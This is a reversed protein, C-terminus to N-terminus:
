ASLPKAHPKPVLGVDALAAAVLADYRGAALDGFPDKTYPLLERFPLGFAARMALLRQREPDDLDIGSVARAASMERVKRIRRPLVAVLLVAIPLGATVIGIIRALTHVADQGQQGLDALNGGTGQGANHFADSLSGGVIPVNGVANGVSDFAGQLGNGASSVGSGLVSLADVLDHVQVGIWIFLVILAVVLVDAVIQRRRDSPVDPYLTLHEWM